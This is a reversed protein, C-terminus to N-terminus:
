LQKVEEIAAHIAKANNEAINAPFKEKLVTILDQENVLNTVKLLAGLMVTNAITRGLYERSIKDGDVIWIENSYAFKHLIAPVTSANVIIKGGPKLGAYYQEDKVLSPDIIVIVDPNDIQTKITFKEEAIRTFASVPAGMREPGFNPFAHVWKGNLIAAEGLLRSATVVGQGARGHFRIDFLKITPTLIM